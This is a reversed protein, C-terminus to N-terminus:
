PSSVSFRDLLGDSYHIQYDDTVFIAYIDDLSDILATGEELGLSFCATSLADGDVSHESLITVSLLNNECPYGTSPDLIHHYLKGGEEFCREYTGSTVVSWDSVPIVLLPTGQTDFPRQIGIQFSRGDPKEGLCLVNGGLDIIASTVHNEVLFEKLRDAIYGKAIAGLDLFTESDSFSVTNGDLSLKEYGVHALGELIADRNPVSPVEATFDWLSSCSGITIDFAGGSLASYDLGTKILSLTEDSVTDTARHNLAYVDSGSATRSLLSEYRQCLSFCEEILSDDETGYLTITVVTNLFFSTKSVKKDSATQSGETGSPSLSAKGCAGLFAASLFLISLFLLVPRFGRFHLRKHM